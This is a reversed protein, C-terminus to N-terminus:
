VRRVSHVTLVRVSRAITPHILVAMALVLMGPMPYSDMLMMLEEAEALVPAAVPTAM